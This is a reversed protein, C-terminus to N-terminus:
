DIDESSLTRNPVKCDDLWVLGRGRGRLGSARELVVLAASSLPGQAGQPVECALGSRGLDGVGPRDRSWSAGRVEGGRAATLALLRLALRTGVWAGSRDVKALAERLDEAPLYWHHKRQKRGAPLVASLTSTPDDQTIAPLAARTWHPSPSGGPGVPPKM